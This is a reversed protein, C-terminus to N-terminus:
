FKSELSDMFIDGGIGRLVSEWEELISFLQNSIEGKKEVM